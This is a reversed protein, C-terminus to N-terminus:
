KCILCKMSRIQTMIVNKDDEEIDFEMLTGLFLEAYVNFEGELVLMNQHAAKVSRRFELTACGNFIKFMGCIIMKLDSNQFHKALCSNGMVKKYLSKIFQTWFEDGGYKKVLNQSKVKSLETNMKMEDIKGVADLIHKRSLDWSTTNGFNISGSYTRNRLYPCHLGNSSNHSPHQRDLKPLNKSHFKSQYTQISSESFNTHMTKVVPSLNLNMIHELKANVKNWKELFAEESSTISRRLQRTVNRIKFPLESILENQNKKQCEVPETEAEKEEPAKEERSASGEFSQSRNKEIIVLKPKNKINNERSTSSSITVEKCDIMIWKKDNDRIFDAIVGKVSEERFLNENLFAVIESMMADVEPHKIFNEVVFLNDCDKTNIIFDQSTEKNILNKLNEKIPLTKVEIPKYRRKDPSASIPIMKYPNNISKSTQLIMNMYKFENIQTKYKSKSNNRVNQPAKERSNKNIKSRNIITFYKCNRGQRWLVRNICAPYSRSKIFTQLYSIAEDSEFAIEANEKSYIPVAEKEPNKYFYLPIENSIQKPTLNLFEPLQCPKSIVQGNKKTQVLFSSESNAIKILTAPVNVNFNTINSYQALLSFIDIRQSNKLRPLFNQKKRFQTFNLDSDTTLKELNEASLCNQLVSHDCPEEKKTPLDLSEKLAAQMYQIDM